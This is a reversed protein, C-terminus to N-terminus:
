PAPVVTAHAGVSAPARLINRKSGYDVVAVEYKPPAPRAYGEPWPWLGEDWEFPQLASADKALDLGELGSWAAAKAILADLDFKGDPSHAIAAHPMGHERISRTLARTDVGALGVIGRRAM